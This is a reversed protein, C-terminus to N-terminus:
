YDEGVPTESQQYTETQAYKARMESSHFYWAIALTAGGFLGGLLIGVVVAQLVANGQSLSMLTMFVISLLVGAGAVMGPAAWQRRIALYMGLLVLAFLAFFIFATGQM